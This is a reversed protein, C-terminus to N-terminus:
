IEKVMHIHECYEDFYIEGCSRYGLKEYFDQVRVQASLSLSKGGQRNIYKEAKSLMLAGFHKGRHEKLVALRGIIYEENEGKFFRCCAVPTNDEYVIMHKAIEDTEDFENVFGQEKIFVEERIYKAEPLLNNYIEVKTM